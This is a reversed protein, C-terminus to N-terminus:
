GGSWSAAWAEIDVLAMLRYDELVAGEVLLPEIVAADVIGNAVLRGGLLMDRIAARHVTFIQRIFGDVGGKTRRTLTLPSLRDKFAARALSRDIGQEVWMWSPISLCLEVIPQSMLPFIVPAFAARGYGETHNLVHIVNRVHLRKGLLIGPPVELWRNDQALSGPDIGLFRLDPKQLITPTHRMIHLTRRVVTMMDSRNARSVDRATRFAGGLSGSQLRDAVPAASQLHAFVNDGGGGNFFARSGTSRACDMGLRDLEQAFVRAAPRALGCAASRSVDIRAPDVWSETLSIGVADAAARAFRREDMDPSVHAYTIASTGQANLAAAIVSSDLGGSLEVLVAGTAVQWSHVCGRVVTRLRDVMENRDASAKQPAIFDWPSWLCSTAMVGTRDVQMVHGPLLENIGSLGTATGRLDRYALTRAIQQWDISPPREGVELLLEPSSAFAVFGDGALTNCPQAGTPDRLVFATGRDNAGIAIYSGWYEQILSTGSDASISRAEDKDIGGRQAPTGNREFLTGIVVLTTTEDAIVPLNSSGFVLLTDTAILPSLAHRTAVADAAARLMANPGAVAFWVRSM